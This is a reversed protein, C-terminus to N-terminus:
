LCNLNCINFMIHTCLFLFRLINRVTGFTDGFADYNMSDYSTGFIGGVNFWSLHVSLGEAAKGDNGAGRYTLWYSYLTNGNTSIPIHIGMKNSASPVVDRDDFAKLTFQGSDLCSPCEETSGEPQMLIIAEDPIWNFFWKSAVAFDSITFGNGGSMMDFGDYPATGEGGSPRTDRYTYSISLHHPHGFNHGVTYHLFVILSLLSTLHSFKLNFRILNTMTLKGEHRTVALGIQYSMWMFDGNVSAWGGGGAFPGSQAVFYILAIGNYDVDEVLGADTVITRAADSTDGFSPGDSSVPFLTQPMIEFTVDMKDWSMDLYYDQNQQMIGELQNPDMTLNPDSPDEDSWWIPLLVYHLTSLTLDGESGSYLPSAAKYDEMGAVYEWM